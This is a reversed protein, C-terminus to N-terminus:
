RREANYSNATIWHLTSIRRVKRSVISWEKWSREPVKLPLWATSLPAGNLLPARFQPLRSLQNKESKRTTEKCQGLEHKSTTFSRFETFLKAVVENEIVIERSYRERVIISITFDHHFIIKAGKPIM